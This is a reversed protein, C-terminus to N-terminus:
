VIGELKQFIAAVREIGRELDYFSRLIVGVLVANSQAPQWIFLAHHFEIGAAHM